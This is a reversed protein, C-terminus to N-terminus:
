NYKEIEKRKKYINSTKQMKHMKTHIINQMNECTNKCKKANRKYKNAHTKSNRVDKANKTNKWLSLQSFQCSVEMTELIQDKSDL